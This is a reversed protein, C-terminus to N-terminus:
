AALARLGENRQTLDIVSAGQRWDTFSLVEARKGQRAAEASPMGFWAYAEAPVYPVMYAMENVAAQIRGPAARQVVLCLPAWGDLLWSIREFVTAVAVPDAMCATLLGGVQDFLRWARALAQSALARIDLAVLSVLKAATGARGIDQAAMDDLMSLRGLNAILAPHRAEAMGPLGAGAGLISLQEVAQRVAAFPQNSRAALAELAVKAPMGRAAEESGAIQQVLLRVIALQMALEAKRDAERAHLAGSAAARGAYGAAAVTRAVARVGDPNISPLAALAAALQRDHVTAACYRGLEQPDLLYIGRKGSPNPLSLELGRSSRRARAGALAPATFPVSAGMDAYSEPQWSARGDSYSADYSM